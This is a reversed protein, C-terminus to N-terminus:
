GLGGVGRRESGQQPPMWVGLGVARGIGGLGALLSRGLGPSHDKKPSSLVKIKEEISEVTPESQGVVRFDVAPNETLMSAENSPSLKKPYIDTTAVRMGRNRLYFEVGGRGNAHGGTHSMGVLLITGGELESIREAMHENRRDVTEAAGRLAAIEVGLREKGGPDRKQRAMEKEIEKVMSGMMKDAERVLDESPLDVCHVALGMKIAARALELHQPVFKWEGHPGRARQMHPDKSPPMPYSGGAAGSAAAQVFDERRDEALEFAINRVGRAKLLTMATRMYSLTEPNKGHQEGFVFVSKDM